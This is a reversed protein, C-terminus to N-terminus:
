KNPNRPSGIPLLFSSQLMQGDTKVDDVDDFQKLCCCCFFICVDVFAFICFHCFFDIFDNPFLYKTNLEEIAAITDKESFPKGHYGIKDAINSLGYGKFTKAIIITPKGKTNEAEKFANM